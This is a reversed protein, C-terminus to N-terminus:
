EWHLLDSYEGDKDMVGILNGIPIEFEKINDVIVTNNNIRLITGFGIASKFWRYVVKEGKMLSKCTRM